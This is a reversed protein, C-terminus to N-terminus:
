AHSQSEFSWIKPVGIAGHVWAREEKQLIPPHRGVSRGKALGRGPFCDCMTQLPKCKIAFVASLWYWSETSEAPMGAVTGPFLVACQHWGNKKHGLHDESWLTM